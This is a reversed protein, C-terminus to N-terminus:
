MQNSYTMRTKNSHTVSPYYPRTAFSNNSCTVPANNSYLQCSMILMIPAHSPTLVSMAVDRSTVNWADSVHVWFFCTFNNIRYQFSLILNITIFMNYNSKRVLMIAHMYYYHSGLMSANHMFRAKPLTFPRFKFRLFLIPVLCGSILILTNLADLLFLFSVCCVHRMHFTTPMGCIFLSLM